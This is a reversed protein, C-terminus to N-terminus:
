QRDYNKDTLQIRRTIHRYFLNVTFVDDEAIRFGLNNAVLEDSLTKNATVYKVHKVKGSETKFEMHHHVNRYPYRWTATFTSNVLNKDNESHFGEIKSRKRLDVKNFIKNRVSNQESLLLLVPSFVLSGFFGIEQLVKLGFTITTVALPDM